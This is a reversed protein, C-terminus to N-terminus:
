SELRAMRGMQRRGAQRAGEWPEQATGGIVRQVYRQFVFCKCCSVSSHLMRRLFIFCKFCVSVVHTHFMHLMWIFFEQLMTQFLHFMKFLRKCCAESISAVHRQFMQLLSPPLPWPRKIEAEIHSGAGLSLM